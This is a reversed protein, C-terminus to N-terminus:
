LCHQAKDLNSFSLISVFFGSQFTKKEHMENKNFYYLLLCAFGSQNALTIVKKAKM